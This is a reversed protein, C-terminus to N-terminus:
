VARSLNDADVVAERYEGRDAAGRMCHLEADHEPFRSLIQPSIIWDDARQYCLM